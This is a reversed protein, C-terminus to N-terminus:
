YVVLKSTSMSNRQIIKLNYLGSKFVSRSVVLINDEITNSYILKGDIDFLQIDKAKSDEFQITLYNDGLPNPFIKVKNSKLFIGSTGQTTASVLDSWESYGYENKSRIIYTYLTGKDLDSDILTEEGNELEAILIWNDDNARSRMVQYEIVDSSSAAWTLQIETESLALASIDIPTFPLSGVGETGVTVIHNLSNQGAAEDWLGVNAFQISYAPNKALMEDQDPLQLSVTYNGDSLTDPISVTGTTQIQGPFWFRIDSNTGTYPLVVQNKTITHTLVIQLPKYQTPAAYGNNVLNLTLELDSGSSVANDIITSNLSIRYGLAINIQDYCEQNKWKNYVSVNYNRNLYTWHLLENREVANSCDSYSNSADCTEGGAITYKTTQHLYALDDSLSTYTGYDSSNALYCDNHHGIRSKYSGDYAEEDSIPENTQVINKMIAPTRGQVSINEPFVDLLKEVLIRRNEQDTASPQYGAGAFNKTYYWEGWVGIFGAQVGAIVDSNKQLVNRLSEIHSYVKEPAADWVTSSTSSSYAFRVICKIGAARISDFDHQMNVRYAESVSDQDVFGKLYFLRLILTINEAERNKILDRAKLIVYNADGTQTHDYWGREPNAIEATTTLYHMTTTQALLTNLGLVIFGIILYINKFIM